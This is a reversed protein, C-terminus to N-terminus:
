GKGEQAQERRAQALTEGGGAPEMVAAAGLQISAGALVVREAREADSTHIGRLM